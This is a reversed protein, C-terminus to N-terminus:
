LSMGLELECEPASTILDWRKLPPVFFINVPIQFGVVGSYGKWMEM